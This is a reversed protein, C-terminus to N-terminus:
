GVNTNACTQWYLSDTQSWANSATQRDMRDWLDLNPQYEGILLGSTLHSFIYEAAAERRALQQRLSIAFGGPWSLLNGFPIARENTVIGVSASRILGPQHRVLVVMKDRTTAQEQL